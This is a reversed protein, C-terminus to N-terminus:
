RWKLLKPGLEGRKSVGISQFIEKLHDKVTYEGIFLKEAIERNSHGMAALLAIEEQRRTMDYQKLKDQICVADPLHELLIIKGPSSHHTLITKVHYCGAETSFYTSEHGEIADLLDTVPRRSLARRAEENIFFSYPQQRQYGRILIVGTGEIAALSKFLINDQRAETALRRESIDTGITLWLNDKEM